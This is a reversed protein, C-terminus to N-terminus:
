AIVSPWSPELRSFDNGGASKERNNRPRFPIQKEQPPQPLQLLQLVQRRLPRKHPSFLIRMAKPSRPNLRLPHNPLRSDM